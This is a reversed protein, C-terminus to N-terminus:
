ADMRTLHSCRLTTTACYRRKLGAQSCTCCVTTRQVGAEAAKLIMEHHVQEQHLRWILPVAFLLVIVLVGIGVYLGARSEDNVQLALRVTEEVYFTAESIGLHYHGSFHTSDTDTEQRPVFGSRDM